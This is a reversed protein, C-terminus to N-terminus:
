LSLTQIVKTTDIIIITTRVGIYRKSCNRKYAPQDKAKKFWSTLFTLQVAPCCAAEHIQTETLAGFTNRLNSTYHSSSPRRHEYAWPNPKHNGVTQIPCLRGKRCFRHWVPLLHFLVICLFKYSPSSSNQSERVYHCRQFRWIDKGPIILINGEHKRWDNHFLCPVILSSNRDHKTNKM